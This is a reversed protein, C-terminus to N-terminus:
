NNSKCNCNKKKWDGIYCKLRKYADRGKQRDWPLMGRIIRKLLRDSKRIYRPGKMSGGSGMRRLKKIREVFNDKSGSIIVKESNIIEVSNGKLLEKAAYSGLRGLVANEGDIIIKKM